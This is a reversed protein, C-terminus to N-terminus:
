NPWIQKRLFSISHFTVKVQYFYSSRPMDHKNLLAPLSYKDKLAGIIVAKERNRLATQDVSPDKKLVTITEKLIDIEMQLDTLQTKLDEIEASSGSIGESLKRRDHEKPSNM